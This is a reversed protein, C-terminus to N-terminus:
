ATLELRYLLRDPDPQRVSRVTYLTGDITLKDGKVPAAPLEAKRIEALRSTAVIPAELGDILTDPRTFILTCATAATSGALTATAAIGFEGFAADLASTAYDM